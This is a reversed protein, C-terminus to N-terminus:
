DGRTTEEVPLVYEILTYGDDTPGRGDTDTFVLQVCPAPTPIGLYGRVLDNVRLTDGVWTPDVPLVWTAGAALGPVDDLPGWLPLEDAANVIRWFTQHALQPTIGLVVLETDLGVTYTCFTRTAEGGLILDYPFSVSTWGYDQMKALTVHIVHESNVGTM